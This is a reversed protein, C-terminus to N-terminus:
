KKGWSIRPDILSYLIDTALNVLAYMLAISLVCIQVLPLDLQYIAEILLLGIGPWNFIKETIVAGALVAGFQLGLLTIVPIMANRLAHKFFVKLSNLGKAKATRIYDEKLVELMSARSMRSLMAALALGMTTAPLILSYIGDDAGRIPLINLKIAFLILLLPGLCFNPMSIGLLSLVSAIKDPLRHHFISAIVGLVPGILSAIIIAALALIITYHLREKVLLIANKRSIFTKVDMTLLSKLFFVYQKTFSTKAGNKDILGLELALREKSVIQAQDGLIHDIVDGPILRMSLTVVLTAGLLVAILSIIRGLANIPKIAVSLSLLAIIGCFIILSYM